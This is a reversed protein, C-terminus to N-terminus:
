SFLHERGSQVQCGCGCVVVGGWGCLILPLHHSGLSCSWGATGEPGLLTGVGRFVTSLEVCKVFAVM